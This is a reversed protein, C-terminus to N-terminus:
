SFRRKRSSMGFGYPNNYLSRTLQGQPAQPTSAGYASAPRVIPSSKGQSKSMSSQPVPRKRGWVSEYTTSRIPGSSKRPGDYNYPVTSSYGEAQQDYFPNGAHKQRWNVGRADWLEGVSPNRGYVQQYAWTDGLGKLRAEREKDMFAKKKAEAAASERAAKEANRKMSTLQGLTVKQGPKLSGYASKDFKAQDAAAKEAAYVKKQEEAAALAAQGEPTKLWEAHAKEKKMKDALNAKYQYNAWTERGDWPVGAQDFKWKEISQQVLPTKFLKMLMEPRMNPTYTPDDRLEPPLSNRWKPIYINYYWHKAAPTVGNREHYLQEWNYGQSANAM